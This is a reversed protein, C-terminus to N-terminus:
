QTVAAVNDRRQRDILRYWPDVGARKPKQPVTVTIAQAGDRIRHRARYVPARAEGFVAVDVLDNMAVRRDRGTGDAKLKQAEVHMTVRWAGNVPEATVRSTRLDWITIDEFLDKLLSRMPAPTVAQLEAYLDLTTPYPPAARFSYKALFSRLATNVREEGLFERLAYLVVAGKDYHIYDQDERSRLLPVEDGTRNQRGVLYRHMMPELFRQVEARGHTKELVMLSTYHAFTEYLVRRGEVEAPAFMAGWWQHAVEHAAVAFPYDVGNEPRTLFGVDESYGVLSPFARARAAEGAHRPIEAIRLTKYPYPAFHASCYDITAKAGALIRDVNFAHKPHYLVEIQVDRWRTTRVAYSASMFGYVSKVPADSEYHFYRRGNQTWTRQLTGPAVAIQDETTGIVINADFWEGHRPRTNRAAADGAAKTARPPLGHEVREDGMLEFGAHYGVYPLLDHTFHSGNAIVEGRVGDNGFGRSRMAVTFHMQVTEGPGLPPDLAFVRYGSVDDDVLAQANRDFAIARLEERAVVHIADIPAKADNTLSYRGRIDLARREPYLEVHLSTGDIRPQPLRVHRKYLREYDAWRKGRERSTEYENLVNTNYFVFGGFSVILLVALAMTRLVPRTMAARPSRNRGRPWFVAAVVLLLLAWATWYLRFWVYPALSPDFGSLDSHQWGPGAPYLLLNHELGFKQRVVLGFAIYLVFALHGAYKNGCLVHFVVALVAWLLYDTLQFGFLIQVWLLLDYDHFGQVAQLAIGTILFIAQLLAIGLFLATCKGALTVWNPVPTADAFDSTRADRERWLLEGAYLLILLYVLPAAEGIARRAMLYTVPWTPTELVYGSELGNVVVFGLLAALPVLSWRSAVIDAFARHAVALTQRLRARLDRRPTVRPIVISPTREQEPEAAVHKQRKRRRTDGAHAFRFRAHAFALLGAGAGLWALRNLLVLGEAAVTQVNREAPTWYAIATRMATFGLPDVLAALSRYVARDGLVEVSLLIGLFLLAGAGFAAVARRTLVAPVFTMAGTAFLTPLTLLLYPQLYTSVRFPGFLGTGGYIFQASALVVPVVALMAANVVLAGAFRGGLYDRKRLPATYFLADMGSRADRAAADGFLMATLVLGFLTVFVMAGAVLYPANADVTGSGRAEQMMIDEATSFALLAVLVLGIWTSPRRLRAAIEFRVIERFKAM